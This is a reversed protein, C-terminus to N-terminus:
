TKIKAVETFSCTCPANHCIHCNNNYIKAFEDALNISASNAVGFACSVFDAMELKIDDFQKNQHQGIYNHITESIEGVEEAWHVGADALTRGTPPYITLFMKQYGDLTKPRLKNAIKVKLRKVSKIKKCACPKQGCYSCLMPFRKWVEDDLGIHLRNAMALLWSFSILLNQKIKEINSKRIGKLSRMAFKQIHSLLDWISYLRDDPLSYVEDIFEQLKKLSQDNYFRAM